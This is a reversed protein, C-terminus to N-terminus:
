NIFNNIYKIKANIVDNKYNIYVIKRIPLHSIIIIFIQEAFLVSLRNSYGTKFVHDIFFIIVTCYFLEIKMKNNMKKKKIFKRM